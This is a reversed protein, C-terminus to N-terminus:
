PNEEMAAVAAQIKTVAYDMEIDLTTKVGHAIDNRESYLDKLAAYIPLGKDILLSLRRLFPTNGINKVDLADWVRRLRWDALQKHQEILMICRRNVEAEFQAFLLLYLGAVVIEPNGSPLGGGGWGSGDGFGAGSGSGMGGGYGDGLGAGNPDTLAPDSFPLYAALIDNFRNM